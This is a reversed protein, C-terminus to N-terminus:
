GFISRGLNLSSQAGTSGGTQMPKGLTSRGSIGEPVTLGYGALMARGSGGGARRSKARSAEREAGTRQLEESRQDLERKQEALKQQSEERIRQSAVTLLVPSELAEDQRKLLRNYQQDIRSFQQERQDVLQNLRDYGRNYQDDTRASQITKQQEGIRETYFDRAKKMESELYVKPDQVLGFRILDQITIAM